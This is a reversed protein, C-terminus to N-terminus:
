KNLLKELQEIRDELAKRAKIENELKTGLHEVAASLVVTYRAYDFTLYQEGSKSNGEEDLDFAALPTLMPYKEAWQQADMGIELKETSYEGESLREALLNAKYFMKTAGVVAKYADEPSVDEIKDKLRGDSYYATINGTANITGRQYLGTSGIGTCLSSNQYLYMGEGVVSSASGHTSRLWAIGYSPITHNVGSAGGNYASGMGWITSGWNGGSGRNDGYGGHIGAITELEGAMYDGTDSRLFQSSDLNDLTGANMSGFDNYKVGNWTFTGNLYLNGAGDVAFKRDAITTASGDANGWCDIYWDGGSGSGDDGDIKIRVGTANGSNARHDIDLYAGDNDGYSTGGGTIKLAGEMTKVGNGTRQLYKTTLPVNSESVTTANFNGNDVDFTFRTANSSNGDRIAMVGGNNIDVYFNSSDNTLLETNGLRLYQNNGMTVDQSFKAGLHGASFVQVGGRTVYMGEGVQTDSFAHSSRFWSIQYNGTALNVGALMNGDYADGMSWIPAGWADGTGTEDSASGYGGHIGRYAGLRYSTIDHYTKSLAGIDDPSPKNHPSYVRENNEYIDAENGHGRIPYRSMIENEVSVDIDTRPGFSEGNATLYDSGDDIVSITALRGRPTTVRYLAGGGRLWVVMGRVSMAMGGVMNSYTETFEVVRYNRDGGGWSTEGTALFTFTLGGRHSATNWTDPAPWSYQRGIHFQEFGFTTQGGHIIVPYYTDADGDVTFSQGENITGAFLEDFRLGNLSEVGVNGTFRTERREPDMEILSDVDSSTHRIQFDLIKFTDNIAADNIFLIIQSRETPTVTFINVGESLEYVFDSVDSSADNLGGLEATVRLEGLDAVEITVEFEHGTDLATTAGTYYYCYPRVPRGSDAIALTRFVIDDGDRTLDVRSDVKVWGYSGNTAIPQNAIGVPLKYGPNLDSGIKFKSGDWKTRLNEDTGYNIAVDTDFTLDGSLKRAPADALIGGEPLIETIKKM